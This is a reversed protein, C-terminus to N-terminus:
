VKVEVMQASSLIRSYMTITFRYLTTFCIYRIHSTNCISLDYLAPIKQKFSEVKLLEGNLAVDMRSGCVRTCKM